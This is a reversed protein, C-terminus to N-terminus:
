VVDARPLERRRQADDFDGANRAPGISCGGGANVHADPIHGTIRHLPGATGATRLDSSVPRERYLEAFAASVREHRPVFRVPQQVDFPRPEGDAVSCRGRWHRQNQLTTSRVGVKALAQADVSGQLDSMSRLYAAANTFSTRNPSRIILRVGPNVATASSMIASPVPALAAINLTTSATSSRDGKTSDSRRASTRLTGALVGSVTCCARLRMATSPTNSATPAIPPPPRGIRLPSPSARAM